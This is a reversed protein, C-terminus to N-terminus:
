LITAAMAKAAECMRFREQKMEMSFQKNVCRASKKSIKAMSMLVSYVIRASMDHAQALKKVHERQDNEVEAAIDAISAKAILNRQDAAM